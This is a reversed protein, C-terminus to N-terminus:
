LTQGSGAKRGAASIMGLLLSTKVANTSASDPGCFRRKAGAKHVLRTSGGPGIRKNWLTNIAMAMAPLKIIPTKLPNPFFSLQSFSGLLEIKATEAVKVINLLPLITM